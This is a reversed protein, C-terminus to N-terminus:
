CADLLQATLLTWPSVAGNLVAREALAIGRALRVTGAKGWRQAPPLIKNEFYWKNLGLEAAAAAPPLNDLYVASIWRLVNTRLLGCIRMTPDAGTTKRLRVLARSLKKRNRKALAEVIPAVSAAAIPAMAGKVEAMDIVKTGHAMALMAMKQVEFSLMGLDAGGRSVLAIALSPQITMGYRKVEDSVFQAAVEPAKWETPEPFAKHIKSHAKVWKGFKTRGDPEGEIYLLLTTDYDKAGLHKDLVELAVKHPNNVVALTKSAMFLGGGDLVDRVATPSVGDVYDIVWGEAEQTSIMHRFFRLRLITQSGSLILLSPFKQPDKNAM